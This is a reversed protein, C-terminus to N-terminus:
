GVVKTSLITKQNYPRIFQSYLEKTGRILGLRWSECYPEVPLTKEEITVGEGLNVARLITLNTIFEEVLPAGPRDFAVDAIYPMKSGPLTFLQLNGWSRVTEIEGEGARRRFWRNIIPSRVTVLIGDSDEPSKENNGRIHFEILDQWEDLIEESYVKM